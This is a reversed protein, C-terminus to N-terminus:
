PACMTADSPALSAGSLNVSLGSPRDTPRDSAQVKHNSQIHENNGTRLPCVQYLSADKQETFGLSLCMFSSCVQGITDLMQEPVDTDQLFGSTLLFLM